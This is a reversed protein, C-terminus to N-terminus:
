LEEEQHKDDEANDRPTQTQTPRICGRLRSPPPRVNLNSKLLTFKESVLPKTLIDTVQDKRSIFRVRLIKSTVKDRVFHYYITIHKTRSHFMTNSTLYKADINDCHLIPHQSLSVGLEGLLSEIWTLEAPM